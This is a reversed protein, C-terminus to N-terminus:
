TSPRPIYEIQPLGQFHADSTVVTANFVLATAYIISDATPLKREISQQAALIAIGETLPVVKNGMLMSYVDMAADTGLTRLTHKYVEFLVITPTLLPESGEIHVDYLEALPGRGVYEIWGVSDVIKM